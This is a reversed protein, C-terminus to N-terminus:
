NFMDSGAGTAVAGATSFGDDGGFFTALDAAAFGFFGFTGFDCGGVPSM